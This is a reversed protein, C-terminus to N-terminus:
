AARASRPTWSWHGGWCIGQPLHVVYYGSGLAFPMKRNATSQTYWDAHNLPLESVGDADPM